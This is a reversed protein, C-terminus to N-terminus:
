YAILRLVGRIFTFGCSKFNTIVIYNSNWSWRYFNQENAPDITEIYVAIKDEEAIYEYYLSDPRTVPTIIEPVSEYEKDDIVVRLHYEKGIEGGVEDVSSYTGIASEYFSIVEGDNSIVEVLASSIPKREPVVNSNSPYNTTYSLKIEHHKIKTTFVGEVVLVDEGTRPILDIVEVCSLSLVIIGLVLTFRRM